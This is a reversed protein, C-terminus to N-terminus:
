IKKMPMEWGGALKQGTTVHCGGFSSLMAWRKSEGFYIKADKQVDPTDYCVQLFARGAVEM